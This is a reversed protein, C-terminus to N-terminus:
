YQYIDYFRSFRYIGKEYDSLPVDLISCSFYDESYKPTSYKGYINEMEPYTDYFKKIIKGTIENVTFNNNEFEVYFDELNYEEIFKKIECIEALKQDTLLFCTDENRIKNNSNFYKSNDFLKIVDEICFRYKNNSNKLSTVYEQIKKINSYSIVDCYELSSIILCNSYKPIINKALDPILTYIVLNFRDKFSIDILQTLDVIMTSNRCFDIDFYTKLINITNIYKSGFFMPKIKIKHSINKM